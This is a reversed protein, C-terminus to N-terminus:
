WTRYTAVYWFDSQWIPLYAMFWFSYCLTGPPRWYIQWQGIRQLHSQDRSPSVMWKARRIDSSSTWTHKRQTVAARSKHRRSPSYLFILLFKKIRILMFRGCYSLCLFVNWITADNFMLECQFELEFRAFVKSGFSQWSVSCTVNFFFVVNPRKWIEAHLCDCAFYM